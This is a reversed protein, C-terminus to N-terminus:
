IFITIKYEKDNDTNEVLFCPPSISKSDSIAKYESDNLVSELIDNDVFGKKINFSAEPEGSEIADEIHDNIESVVFDTMRKYAETSTIVKM